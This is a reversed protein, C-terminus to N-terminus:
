VVRISIGYMSLLPLCVNPGYSPYYSSLFRNDLWQQVESLKNDNWFVLCTFEGEELEEALINVGPEEGREGRGIKLGPYLCMCSHILIYTLWGEWKVNWPFCYSCKLQLPRIRWSCKLQLPRIRWCFYFMNLLTRSSFKFCIHSRDIEM